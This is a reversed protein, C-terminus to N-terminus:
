KIYELTEFMQYIAYVAVDIEKPSLNSVIREDPFGKYYISFTGREDFEDNSYDSEEIIMPYKLYGKEYLADLEIQNQRLVCEEIETIM